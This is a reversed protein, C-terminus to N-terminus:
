SKPIQEVNKAANGFKDAVEYLMHSLVQLDKKPLEKINLHEDSFTGNNETLYIDLLEYIRMLDSLYYTGYLNVSSWPRRYTKSLDQNELVSQLTPLYKWKRRRYGEDTLSM